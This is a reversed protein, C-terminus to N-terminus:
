PPKRRFRSHCGPSQFGSPWDQPGFDEPVHQRQETEGAVMPSVKADAGAAAARRRKLGYLTLVTSPQFNLRGFERKLGYLTLVQAAVLDLSPRANGDRDIWASPKLTGALALSDGAELALLAAGASESFAVVNVFLSDAEGVATRVKATVFPQGGRSTREEARQYLKGAILAEIM